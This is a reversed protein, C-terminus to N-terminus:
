NFNSANSNITNELSEYTSVTYDLFNGYSNIVEKIEEFKRSFSNFRDKITESGQSVWVLNLENMDTKVNSLLEYISNNLNKIKQSIETVEQLAIKINNDM